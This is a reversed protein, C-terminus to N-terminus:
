RKEKEGKRKYKKKEYYILIRFIENNERVYCIFM